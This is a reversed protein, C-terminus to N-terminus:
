SAWPERINVGDRMKQDPLTIRRRILFQDALAIVCARQKEGAEREFRTDQIRQFSRQRVNATQETAEEM